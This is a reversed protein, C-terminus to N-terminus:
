DDDDNVAKRVAQLAMLTPQKAKSVDQLNNRVDLNDDTSWSVEMTIAGNQGTGTIGVEKPIIKPLIDKYFIRENATNARAWTLMAPSGGLGNFVELINERMKNRQPMVELTPDNTTNNNDM